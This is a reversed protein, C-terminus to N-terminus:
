RVKEVSAKRQMALNSILKSTNSIADITVPKVLYSANYAEAFLKDEASCSTSLILLPIDKFADNMRIEKLVERGHAKPLNFDMVVIDPLKGPSKVYKIALNGDPIIQINYVIRETELGEKLIAVDDADDEILLIDIM